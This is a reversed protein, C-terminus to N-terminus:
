SGLRRKLTVSSPTDGPPLATVKFRVAKLRGDHLAKRFKKSFKIKLTAHGKANAKKKGGAHGKGAKLGVKVLTGAPLGRVRVMVQKSRRTLKGIKIQKRKLKFHAGAPPGNLAPTTFTGEQGLTQNHPGLAQVVGVRYHYTTGPELDTLNFASDHPTSGSLTGILSVRQSTLTAPGERQVYIGGTGDVGGMDIVVRVSAAYPTVTVPGNQITPRTGELPLTKATLDGTATSGFPTTLTVRYHYVTNPELFMLQTSGTGGGPFVLGDRVTTGYSATTGYELHVRGGAGKVAVNFHPTLSTGLQDVITPEITPPGCPPGVVVDIHAHAPTPDPNGARDVAFASFDHPGQCLSTFKLGADCLFTPLSDLSCVVLGQRTPESAVVRWQAEQSAIPGSPGSVITTDPPTTDITFPQVLPTPDTAGALVARAKFVHSTGPAVGPYSIVQDCPSFAAGDLSCEFSAGDPSSVLGFSPTHRPGSVVGAGGLGGVSLLSGFRFPGTDPPPRDQQPGPYDRVYFSGEDGGNGYVGVHYATAATAMFTLRSGSNNGCDPKPLAATEFVATSVTAGTFIALATQADTGLDCTEITYEGTKLPQFLYWVSQGCEPGQSESTCGESLFPVAEGPEITAEVTSGAVEGGVSLPAAAAYSDNPPAAALAAGAGWLSAAAVALAALLWRM